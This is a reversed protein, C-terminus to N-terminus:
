FTLDTKPITVRRISGLFGLLVGVRKQSPLSCIQVMIGKLPGNSIYADQGIQIQPVVPYIKSTEEAIKMSEIDKNSIFPISDGFKIVNKIGMTYKLASYNELSTNVFIYNPFLLEEKFNSNTKKITIKPLYYDFRQNSLNNEVRKVEKSKYLATLWKKKM